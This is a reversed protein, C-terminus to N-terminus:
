TVMEAWYDHRVADWLRTLRPWRDRAEVLDPFPGHGLSMVPLNESTDFVGKIRIDHRMLTWSAEFGDCETVFKYTANDIM